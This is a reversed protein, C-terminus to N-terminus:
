RIRHPSNERKAHECAVRHCRKQVEPRPGCQCHFDLGRLNDACDARKLIKPKLETM